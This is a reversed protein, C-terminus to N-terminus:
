RKLAHPANRPSTLFAPGEKIVSQVKGEWSVGNGEKEQGKETITAKEATRRVKRVEPQRRVSESLLHNSSAQPLPSGAPHVGRKESIPTWTSLRTKIKPTKILM